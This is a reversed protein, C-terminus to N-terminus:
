PDKEPAEWRIGLRRIRPDLADCPVTRSQERGAPDRLAVLVEAKDPPRRPVTVSFRGERDVDAPIGDVLVESGGQATGAVHACLQEDDSPIAAAVKLLLPVPVASIPEPASPADGQRVLATQGEHVEVDRQAARLNVSGTETAVAITSGTSLVSFRAGRTEAVAGSSESEIKLVREGDPKYDVALRGRELRFRHVARTLERITVQTSETVALTSKDGIRLDTRGNRGTRISEDAKLHEGPLLRSWAGSGRSREASGAVSLVVAEQPASLALAQQPAGPPRDGGRDMFAAPPQYVTHRFLVFAACVLLLTAVAVEVASRAGSKAKPM